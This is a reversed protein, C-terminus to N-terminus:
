QRMSGRGAGTRRRRVGDPNTIENNSRWHNPQNHTLDAQRGRRRRDVGRATRPERTQPRAEGVTRGRRLVVARDAVAMVHDMSHSILIVAVGDHKLRRILDLM